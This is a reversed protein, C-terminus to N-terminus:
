MGPTSSSGNSKPARFPAWNEAIGLLLLAGLLLANIGPSVLAMCVLVNLLFRIGPPLPLRFIFFVLIGGGQVLYLMICIVLINWAAIELPAAKLANGGLVGLLSASLIWILPPPAHFFVLGGGLRERRILGSVFLALQRSLGFIIFCSAAAGGRLAAANLYEALVDPNIYQEILSRQVVDAGSSATYLSALMEAQARLFARFGGEGGLSLMVPALSLAGCLAALAFRFAGSVRFRGFGEAPPSVIWAFATIMVTFYLMDWGLEGIRAGYFWWMGASIVGNGLVSLFTCFWLTGRGYVYATIGLPLLFLLGLFGTRICVVSVGACILAPVYAVAAPLSAAM